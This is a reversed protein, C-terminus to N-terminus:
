EDSPWAQLPWTASASLGRPRPANGRVDDADPRGGAADDWLGDGRVALRQHEGTPTSRADDLLDRAAAAVIKFDAALRVSIDREPEDGGHATTRRHGAFLIPVFGQVPSAQEARRDAQAGSRHQQLVAGLEPPLPGGRDDRNREDEGQRLATRLGTRAAFRFTRVVAVCRM